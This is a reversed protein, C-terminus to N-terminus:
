SFQIHRRFSASDKSDVCMRKQVEWGIPVSTLVGSADVVRLQEHLRYNFHLGARHLVLWESIRTTHSNRDFIKFQFAIHNFDLLAKSLPPTPEWDPDAVLVHTFNSFKRWCEQFV